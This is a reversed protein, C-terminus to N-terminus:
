SEESLPHKSGPKGEALTDGNRETSVGRATAIRTAGHPDGSRAISEAHGPAAAALSRGSGPRGDALTHHGEPYPRSRHEVAGAEAGSAGAGRRELLAAWEAPLHKQLRVLTEGDIAEALAQCVVQAHEAARAPSVGERQGVRRYLEAVGFDGGHRARRMARGARAPLQGAVAEAESATLRAGLVGAVAAIAKEAAGESELGGREKVREIWDQREM